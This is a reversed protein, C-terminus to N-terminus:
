GGHWCSEDGFKKGWLLLLGSIRSAALPCLGFAVIFFLYCFWYVM